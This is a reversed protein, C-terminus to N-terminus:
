NFDAVSPTNIKSKTIIENIKRQVFNKRILNKEDNRKKM